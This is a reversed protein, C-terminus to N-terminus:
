KKSKKAKEKDIIALVADLDLSKPDTGRPIKFNDKGQKIYPGFRGNLIQIKQEPFETIFKEQEKRAHERILECAEEETVTYPSLTKGLSVFVKGYKIYPGFRGNSATIQQGEYEGVVRPLKLLDLAEELTISEILQGQKMSAFQKQPDDNAGRQVLPGFRGIRALIVKGSQPDNGLVRESKTPETNGLAKEVENHFPGYFDCIMQNWVKQGKAIEDFEDEVKATFGYDIIDNFFKDLYDTVGIGINEPYLRKKEAGCMEKCVSSTINGGALKLEGFTREVGPRSSELVYGRKKITTVTSAYTSPRGIGLEELKKVLSAESYRPPHQTFRETAAVTLCNMMQGSGLAPLKQTEADEEDDRGEIYVKLFGDFLIQEGQVLFKEDLSDGAITIETKEIRADAMQSAITRKWILEYLKKETATGEITENSLYTPRIAEHAEQAGKVKTRYNRVKSYQEGYLSIVAQKATNIALSSLNTSDTRMYTILGAEYLRQAITMTQSVSFGLKRAAEQQLSSTTFPAAPTRVGQRSEVSAVSFSAGSCKELFARAEEETAFKRDLQAKVKSKSGEPTFVAEVKWFNQSKFANIERERDVILRVAVSQVRGASLKPQIKKWLVPSLEFGVLRDLVRRAQQAMVLNMDIGRPADIANVIANKTIEHFVIRRTNEEKLGLTEFLHWAIAEGERDEDSALWVTDAKAALSKLETVVKRKDASIVYEPVFGKEIDIGLNKKSLDRIHGFSSRVTYGKGLFKEITKAKAPSEVIVLNEKGTSM